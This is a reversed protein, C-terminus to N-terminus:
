AFLRPTGLFVQQFHALKQEWKETLGHEDLPAQAALTKRFLKVWRNVEGTKIKLPVHANIVDLPMVLTATTAGLLQIEWFAYIRPLHEDFDAIHRFHYVILIDAKAQQYFQDVVLRIFEPPTM